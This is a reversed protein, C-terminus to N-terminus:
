SSCSPRSCPVSAWTPWSSCRTTARCSLRRPLFGPSRAIRRRVLTRVSDGVVAGLFDGPHCARRRLARASWCKPAVGPAVRRLQDIPRVRSAPQDRLARGGAISCDPLLQDGIGHTATARRPCLGLDALWARRRRSWLELRRRSQQASRALGDGALRVPAGAVRTPDRSPRFAERISTRNRPGRRITGDSKREGLRLRWRSVRRRSRARRSAVM